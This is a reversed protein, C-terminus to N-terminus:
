NWPPYVQLIMGNLLHNTIMILDNSDGQEQPQPVGPGKWPRVKHRFYILTIRDSSVDTRPHDELYIALMIESVSGNPLRGNPGVKGHFGETSEKQLHNFDLDPIMEPRTVYTTLPRMTITILGRLIPNHSGPVWIAM